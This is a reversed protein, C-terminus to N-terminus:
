IRFGIVLIDDVQELSGKWSNIKNKLTEKQTEMPLAAIEILLEKFQQHKFKKGKPGGFQDAYGDTFLYLCDGKQGAITHNTFPTVREDVYAGIPQKDAKIETLENNRILYMPNNAGAFQIQNSSYDIACISMDMGDRITNETKRQKLVDSLQSNLFNLVDAPCNVGEQQKTQNLITYGMISMFAGPVGHGTCDIASIVSVKKKDNTTTSISWYFDGSVIDKPQYLVFSETFYEKLEEDSPLIAHQIRKAYNISDTIEKSKEEIIENKITMQRNSEALALRAIIEKKTLNTRTNILIITFLAVTGTLMGGNVLVESLTLQSNISFLIVNSLFTVAVMLISYIPKWLIFMGAGIFLAIYALTHKQLQSVDIVSYMYANQVSIGLVPILVIIEPHKTLKNKFLLGVVTAITVIIRFILFNTFHTPSNYYDEVAWLPNLVVGVWAILVHYKFATTNLETKWDVTPTSIQKSM